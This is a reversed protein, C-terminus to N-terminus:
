TADDKAERDEPSQTRFHDQLIAWDTEAVEPPTGAGDSAKAGANFLEDDIRLIELRAKGDGKLADTMLSKALVEAKSLKVEKGGERVTIKSELERRLSAKVGKAGKPRGKPNGSQGKKFQTHKPPNAYGVKHEVDPDPM